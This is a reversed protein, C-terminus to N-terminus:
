KGLIYIINAGLMFQDIDAIAYEAEAQLKWNPALSFQAGGVFHLGFKTDSDSFSAGPYLDGGYSYGPYDWKWSYFHIGIGGGAYPEINSKVPFFYRVTSKLAIDSQSWDYKAGYVGVNYGANWYQLSADWHLQPIFTGLDAVAGITFTNDWPDEPVLFGVKVGIGKLGIDSNASAQVTCLALIGLLLMGRLFVTRLRM